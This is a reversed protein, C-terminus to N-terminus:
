IEIDSRVTLIAFDPIVHEIGTWGSIGSSDRSLDLRPLLDWGEPIAVHSLCGSAHKREKKAEWGVLLEKLKLFGNIAM